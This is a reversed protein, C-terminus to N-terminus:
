CLRMRKGFDVAIDEFSTADTVGVDVQTSELAFLHPFSYSYSGTRNQIRYQETEGEACM